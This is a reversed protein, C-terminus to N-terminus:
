LALALWRQWGVDHVEALVALSRLRSERLKAALTRDQTKYHRKKQQHTHAHLTTGASASGYGPDEQSADLASADRTQSLLPLLSPM